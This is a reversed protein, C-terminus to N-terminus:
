SLGGRSVQQFPGVRLSVIELNEGLRNMGLVQQALEPAHFLRPEGSKERRGAPPERRATKNWLERRQDNLCHRILTLELGCDLRMQM